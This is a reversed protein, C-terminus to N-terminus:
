TRFWPKVSHFTAFNGNITVASYVSLFATLDPKELGILRDLYKPVITSSLLFM